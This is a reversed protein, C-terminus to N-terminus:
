SVEERRQRKWFSCLYSPPSRGMADRLARRQGPWRRGCWRYALSPPLSPPLSQELGKGTMFLAKSIMKVARVRKRM